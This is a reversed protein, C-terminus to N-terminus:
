YKSFTPKETKKTTTLEEAKRSIVGVKKLLSKNLRM